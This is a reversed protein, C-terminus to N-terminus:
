LTLGRLASPSKNLVTYDIGGRVAESGLPWLCLSHVKGFRSGSAYLLTCPLGRLPTIAFASTKVCSANTPLATTSDALEYHISRTLM